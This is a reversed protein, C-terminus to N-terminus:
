RRLRVTKQGTKRAKEEVQRAKRQLNAVRSDLLKYVREVTPTVRKDRLAELDGISLRIRTSGIQAYARDRDVVLWDHKALRVLEDFESVKM